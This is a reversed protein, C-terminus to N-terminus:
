LSAVLVYEGHGVKQIAGACRLRDIQRFATARSVEIAQSLAKIGFAEKGLETKIQQMVPYLVAASNELVFEYDETKERFRLVLHADAAHRARARVLREPAKIDLDAFRAVHIQGETAMSMAFTGAAGQCWELGRAAKGTSDHHIIVICCELRKGLEDLQALEFQEAKVIDMGPPRPGRLATYSDLVVMVLKRATIEKELWDLLAPGFSFPLQPVLYFPMDAPGGGSHEVLDRISAAGGPDDQEVVMVGGVGPQNLTYYDFLSKGRAIALAQQIALVTKGAKSQGFLLTAGHAALPYGDFLVRQMPTEVEKLQSYTLLKPPEPRGAGSRTAQERPPADEDQPPPFEPAAPRNPRPGDFLARVDQWTRGSCSDHFCKFGITGDAHEFIAADPATHSPDFPCAELVRKKGGNWAVPDRAQLNRAM